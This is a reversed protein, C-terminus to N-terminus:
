DASFGKLLSGSAPSTSPQLLLPHSRNCKLLVDAHRGGQVKPLSALQIIQSLLAESSKPNIHLFEMSYRDTKADNQQQNDDMLSIKCAQQM